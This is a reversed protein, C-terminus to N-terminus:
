PSSSTCPPTETSSLAGTTGWRPRHMHPVYYGVYLGPALPNKLPLMIPVRHSLFRMHTTM